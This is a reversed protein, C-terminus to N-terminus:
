AQHCPAQSIAGIGSLVIIVLFLVNGLVAALAFFRRRGAPPPDDHESDRTAALTAIAAAESLLVLAGASAMLSIEWTRLDIGLHTGGAGCNAVTVGYGVVFQVTWILAAGLLGFWQLFELGISPHFRRM